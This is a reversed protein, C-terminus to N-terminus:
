RSSWRGSSSSWSRCGPKSRTPRDRLEESELLSPWLARMCAGVPPQLVGALAACAALAATPAGRTALLTLAGLAAPYGVALPLLVRAQGIRDVLRGLAPGTMASALSACAVVFGAVAYSRGEGRLSLLTALPAMGIPLRGILGAVVM